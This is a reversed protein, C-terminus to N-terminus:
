RNRGSEGTVWLSSGQRYLESTEPGSRAPLAPCKANAYLGLVRGRVRAKEGGPLGGGGLSQGVKSPKARTVLVTGVQLM